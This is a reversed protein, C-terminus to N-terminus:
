KRKPNPTRKKAEPSKRKVGESKLSAPLKEPLDVEDDVLVEMPLRVCRAYQLVVGLPPIRNEHEREYASIHAQILEDSFGLRRIMENQSLGLSSRIYRLKEAM